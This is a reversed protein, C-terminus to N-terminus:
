DYWHRDIWDLNGRRSSRAVNNSASMVSGLVGSADGNKLASACSPCVQVVRKGFQLPVREPSPRTCHACSPHDM